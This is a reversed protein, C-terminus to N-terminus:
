SIEDIKKQKKFEMERRKLILYVFKVSSLSAHM